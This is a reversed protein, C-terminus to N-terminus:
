NTNITHIGHDITDFAATLDLMLLVAGSGSDLATLIDSQMKLLATETPHRQRYASQVSSYLHNDLM